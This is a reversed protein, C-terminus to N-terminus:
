ARTITAIFAAIVALAREPQDRFPDHGCQRWQELTVAGQALAAIREIQMMTGHEDDTGQIALVPCTINQLLPEITWGANEPALWVEAWSHLMRDVDDHYRAMRERLVGTPWAARHRQIAEQTIAEDRVHPAAVVLGRAPQGKGAYALAATGGDSHGILVVDRLGLSALVEPLVVAGEHILFDPKRAEHIVDSRGYGYRSYVLAGCGTQDVLRFPFDRWQALCGLGQHLFVLTPLGAQKAPFFQYELRHGDAQLFNIPPATTM